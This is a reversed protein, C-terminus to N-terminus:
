TDALCVVLEVSVQQEDLKKEGRQGTERKAASTSLICDGDDKGSRSSNDAGTGISM